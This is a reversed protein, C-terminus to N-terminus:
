SRRGGRRAWFLEEAEASGAVPIKGESLNKVLVDPSVKTVGKRSATTNSAEATKRYESKNALTTKIVDTKLADQISIKKFKAYEVVDDFDDIHVNAQSLAYLDKQGVNVSTEGQPKESSGSKNALQAKLKKAEAEADKMRAYLPATAKKVEAELDTGETETSEVSEETANETAETDNQSDVNENEENEM